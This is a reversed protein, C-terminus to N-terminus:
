PSSTLSLYSIYVTMFMFLATWYQWLIGKVRKLVFQMASKGPDYIYIYIYIDPDDTRVISNAMLLGSVVFFFHVPIAALLPLISIKTNEDALANTHHLFILFTFVLKLFDLQYNRQVMTSKVEQSM